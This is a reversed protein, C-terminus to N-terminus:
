WSLSLLIDNFDIGDVKILNGWLFSALHVTKSVGQLQWNSWTNQSTEKDFEVISTKKYLKLISTCATKGLSFCITFMVCRGEQQAARIQAELCKVFYNFMQLLFLLYFM